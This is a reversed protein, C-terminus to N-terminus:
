CNSIGSNTASFPDPTIALIRHNPMLKKDRESLTIEFRGGRRRESTPFESSPALADLGTIELKRGSREWVAKLDELHHMVNHDVYVVSSFDLTLVEIDNSKVLIKKLSMYNSFSLSGQIM